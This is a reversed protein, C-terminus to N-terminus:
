LDLTTQDFSLSKYGSLLLQHQNDFSLMKTIEVTWHLIQRRISLAYPLYNQYKTWNEGTFYL